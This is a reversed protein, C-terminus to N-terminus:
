FRKVRPICYALFGPGEPGCVGPRFFTLLRGCVIVGIWLSVSCIAIVKAARPADDSAGPGMARKSTTLYFALANVGALGMFLLKFHFAPNYIYQDPETMLFFSGSVLNIAYGTLGWPILKHLAAIRIRKALGLLRLDFLFIMGVLLSLGIFHISEAIPWGWRTRMIVAIPKASALTRVLWIQFNAM